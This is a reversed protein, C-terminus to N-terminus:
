ADPFVEPDNVPQADANGFRLVFRARSPRGLTGAKQDM